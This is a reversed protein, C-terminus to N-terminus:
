IIGYEKSISKYIEGHRIKSIRTKDSDTGYEGSALTYIERNTADPNLSIIECVKRVFDDDWMSLFKSNLGHEKAHINNDRQSLWELNWIYNEFKNGNIHNVTYNQMNPFPYFSEMVMRHILKRIYISRWKGNSKIANGTFLRYVLYGSNIELPKLFIGKNNICRGYTSIWYLGYKVNPYIVPNWYEKMNPFIIPLSKQEFSFIDMNCM